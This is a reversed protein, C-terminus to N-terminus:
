KVCNKIFEQYNYVIESDSFLSVQHLRLSCEAFDDSEDNAPQKESKSDIISMCNEMQENSLFRFVRPVLLMLYKVGAADVVDELFDPLSDGFVQPFLLPCIEFLVAVLEFFGDFFELSDNQWTLFIKCMLTSFIDNQLGNLKILTAIFMQFENVEYNSIVAQALNSLMTSRNKSGNVDRLSTVSLISFAVERAFPQMEGLLPVLLDFANWMEPFLEQACVFSALIVELLSTLITKNETNILQISRLYSLKCIQSAISNGKLNLIITLITNFVSSISISDPAVEVYFAALSFTSNVTEFLFPSIQTLYFNDNFLFQLLDTIQPVEYKQAIQLIKSIVINPPFSQFIQTSKLQSAIKSLDNM